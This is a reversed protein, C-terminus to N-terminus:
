VKTIRIRDVDRVECRLKLMRQQKELHRDRHEYWLYVTHLSYINIPPNHIIYKTELIKQIPTYINYLVNMPPFQSHHSYNTIQKDHNFLPKMQDEICM